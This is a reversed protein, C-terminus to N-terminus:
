PQTSLALVDFDISSSLVFTFPNTALGVVSRKEGWNEKSDDYRVVGVQVVGRGGGGREGKADVRTISM